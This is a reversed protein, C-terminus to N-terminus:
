DAETGVSELGMDSIFKLENVKANRGTHHFHPTSFIPEAYQKEFGISLFLEEDTKEPSYLNFVGHDEFVLCRHKITDAIWLQHMGDSFVYDENQRVVGLAFGRQVHRQYVNWLIKGSDHKETCFKVKVSVAESMSELIKYFASRIM